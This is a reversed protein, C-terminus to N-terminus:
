PGHVGHHGRRAHVPVKFGSGDPAHTRIHTHPPISPDLRILVRCDHTHPGDGVAFVAPNSTCMLDNVQIGTTPSFKVNASELGLGAVNPLRGTAVLLQEGQTHMHTHTRPETCNSMSASVEVTVFTGAAETMTLTFLGERYEM